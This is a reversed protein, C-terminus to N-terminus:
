LLLKVEDLSSILVRNQGVRTPPPESIPIEVEEFQKTDRRVVGEPLMVKVESIYGLIM